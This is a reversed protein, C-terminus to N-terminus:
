GQRLTQSVSVTPQVHDEESDVARGERTSRRGGIRTGLRSLTFGFPACGKPTSLAGQGISIPFMAPPPLPCPHASALHEFFFPELQVLTHWASPTNLVPLQLALYSRSHFRCIRPLFSRRSSSAGLRFRRRNGDLFVRMHVCLCVNFSVITVVAFSEFDCSWPM